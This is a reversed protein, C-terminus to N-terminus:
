PDQANIKTVTDYKDFNLFGLNNTDLTVVLFLKNENM